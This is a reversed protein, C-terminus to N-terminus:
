AAPSPSLSGEAHKRERAERLRKFVVTRSCHLTEAMQRLSMGERDLMLLVNEDIPIPKRGFVRGKDQERKIGAKVRESMRTREQKAIAALIGIIADRFPGLSDLYQETYSVWDIGAKTLLQLHQLTGLVGERSFRDLSWFLVVDFEHRMAAAMMEEFAPRFKGEGASDYDVYRNIITFGRTTALSELNPMQNYPDQKKAKEPTSVRIYAAARMQIQLQPMGANTVDGHGM